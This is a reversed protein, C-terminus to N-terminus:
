VMWEVLCSAAGIAKVKECVNEHEEYDRSTENSYKTEFLAPLRVDHEAGQKREKLLTLPPVSVATKKNGEAGNAEYV